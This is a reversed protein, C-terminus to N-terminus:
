ELKVIKSKEEMLKKWEVIDNNNDVIENYYEFYDRQWFGGKYGIYSTIRISENNKLKLSSNYYYSFNEWILDAFSNLEKLNLKYKIDNYAPPFISLLNILKSIFDYKGNSFFLTNIKEWIIKNIKIKIKTRTSWEVVNDKGICQDNDYRYREQVATNLEQQFTVNDQNNKLETREGIIIDNYKWPNQQDLYYYTYGFYSTIKVAQNDLELNLFLDYYYPFNEWILDAFSNIDNDTISNWWASHDERHFNAIGNKLKIIFDEKLNLMFLVVIEMWTKATLTLKLLDSSLFKYYKELANKQFSYQNSTLLKPIVKPVLRALQKDLELEVIPRASSSVIEFKELTKRESRSLKQDDYKTLNIIQNPKLKELQKNTTIHEYSNNAVTFSMGNIGIATASILCLIKKM